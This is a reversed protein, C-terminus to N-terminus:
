CAEAAAADRSADGPKFPIAAAYATGARATDATVVSPCRRCASVGEDAWWRCAPRLSCAPLSHGEAETLHAVAARAVGCRGGSFQPCGEGRCPATFRFVEEPRLEPPVLALLEPGVPRPAVYRLRPAGAEGEVVGFLQAGEWDAAASPCALGEGEAVLTV